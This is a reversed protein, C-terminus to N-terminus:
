IDWRRSSIERIASRFISRETDPLDVLRQVLGELSAIPSRINHSVEQAFASATAKKQAVILDIQASRKKSKKNQETLFDSLNAFSETIIGM